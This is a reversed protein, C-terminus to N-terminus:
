GSCTSRRVMLAWSRAQGQGLPSSSHFDSHLDHCLGIVALFRYAFHGAHLVGIEGRGGQTERQGFALGHELGQLLDHHLPLHLRVQALLAVTRVTPVDALTLARMMGDKAGDKPDQRDFAGPERLARALGV